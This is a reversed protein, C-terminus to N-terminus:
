NECSLSRAGVIREQMHEKPKPAEIRNRQNTEGSESKPVFSNYRQEIGNYCRSSQCSFRGLSPLNPLRRTTSVRIVFLLGKQLFKM